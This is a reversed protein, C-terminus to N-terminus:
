KISLGIRRVVAIAKHSTIRKMIVLSNNESCGARLMQKSKRGAKVGSKVHSQNGLM